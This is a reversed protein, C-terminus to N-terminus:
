KRELLHDNRPVEFSECRSISTRLPHQFYLETVDSDDSAKSRVQRALLGFRLRIPNHRLQKPNCLSQTLYRGAAVDAMSTVVHALNALVAM